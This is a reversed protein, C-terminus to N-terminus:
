WKKSPPQNIIRDPPPDIDFQAILVATGGSLYVHMLRHMGDMIYQGNAMLIIPYKLDATRVRELHHAVDDPTAIPDLLVNRIWLDVKGQFEAISRKKSPLNRALSWLRPVDYEYEIGKTEYSFTSPATM